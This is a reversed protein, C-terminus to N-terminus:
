NLIAQSKPLDDKVTGWKSHGPKVERSNWIFQPFKNTQKTKNTGNSQRRERGLPQGLAAWLMVLYLLFAIFCNFVTYFLFVCDLLQPPASLLSALLLYFLEGSYSRRWATDLLWCCHYCALRKPWPTKYSLPLLLWFPGRGLVHWGTKGLWLSWWSFRGPPVFFM